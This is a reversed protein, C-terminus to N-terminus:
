GSCSAAGSGSCWEALNRGAPAPEDAQSLCAQDTHNNTIRGGIPNVLDLSLWRGIRGTLFFTLRLAHRLRLIATM